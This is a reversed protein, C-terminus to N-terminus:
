PGISDPTSRQVPKESLFFVADMRRPHPIPTKLSALWEKPKGALKSRGVKAAMRPDGVLTLIEQLWSVVDEDPAGSFTPVTALAEMFTFGQIASSSSSSALPKLSSTGAFDRRRKPSFSTQSTSGRSLVFWCAGLAQLSHRDTHRSEAM